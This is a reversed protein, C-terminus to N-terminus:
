RSLWYPQDRPRRVWAIIAGLCLLALPGTPPSDLVTFHAVIAGVMTCMLLVAGYFAVSPVLVLLASGVEILGTVYRFWQGFGIVDFMEVMPRAGALKGGGAGLFAVAVLAQAIWVVVTVVRSQSAM